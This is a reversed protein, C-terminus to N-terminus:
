LPKVEDNSTQLTLLTDPDIIVLLEGDLRHIGTAVERWNPSMNAPTKEIQDHPINMVDGVSDVMLSYLENNREVVVFMQTQEGDKQELRLRARVNIVTVIRGRLNISGAIEPPSLPVQTMNQERLVDRVHQVPVGFLQGDVRMTVLMKADATMITAGGIGHGETVSQELAAESM